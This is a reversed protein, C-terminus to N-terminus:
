LIEFVKFLKRTVLLLSRWGLLKKNTYSAEFVYQFAKKNSTCTFRNGLFCRRHSTYTTFSDTQTRQHAISCSIMMRPATRPLVSRDTEVGFRYFELPREGKQFRRSSVRLLGSPLM